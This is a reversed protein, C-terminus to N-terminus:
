LEEDNKAEDTEPASGQYTRKVTMHLMGDIDRRLERPLDVKEYWAMAAAKDQQVWLLFAQQIVYFRERQDPVRLGWAIAEVPDRYVMWQAFPYLAPRMDESALRARLWPESAEPDDLQWRYVVGRIATDRSDSPPLSLMWEFAAYPDKKAWLTGVLAVADEQVFDQYGDEDYWAAAREPDSMAMFTLARSFLKPKLNNAADVPVSRVWEIVRARDKRMLDLVLHMLLAHRAEDDPMEALLPGTEELYDHAVLGRLLQSKLPRVNVSGEEELNAIYASVSAGRDTPVWAAIAAGAAQM